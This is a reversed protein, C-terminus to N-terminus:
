GIQIRNKAHKSNIYQNKRTIGGYYNNNKAEQATEDFDNSKLLKERFILFNENSKACFKVQNNSIYTFIQLRFKRTKIKCKLFM